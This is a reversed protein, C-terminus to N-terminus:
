KEGGCGMRCAVSVRVLGRVRQPWWGWGDGLEGWVGIEALSEISDVVIGCFGHHGPAAGGEL